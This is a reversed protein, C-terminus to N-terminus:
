ILNFISMGISFFRNLLVLIPM